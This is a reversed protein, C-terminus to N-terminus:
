VTRRSRRFSRSWRSLWMTERDREAFGVKPGLSAVAARLVIDNGKMMGNRATQGFVVTKSSFVRTIRGGYM